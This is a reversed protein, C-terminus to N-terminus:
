HAPMAPDRHDTVLAYSLRQGSPVYFFDAGSVLGVGDHHAARELKVIPRQGGGGGGHAPSCPEYGGVGIGGEGGPASVPQRGPAPASTANTAVAAPREGSTAPLGYSGIAARTRPRKPWSLTM